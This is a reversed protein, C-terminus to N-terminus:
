GRTLEFQESFCADCLGFDALRGQRAVYAPVFDWGPAHGGQRRFRGCGACAELRGLRGLYRGDDPPMPPYLDAIPMVHRPTFIVEVGVVQGEADLVPAYAAGLIHAVEAGHCTATVEQPLGARARRLVGALRRVLPDGRLCALYDRGKLAAGQVSSAGGNEAAFLDWAPNCHRIRGALDLLCASHDLADLELAATELAPPALDTATVPRERRPAGPRPSQLHRALARDDERIHPVILGEVFGAVREVMAPTAGEDRYSEALALFAQCISEHARCHTDLGPHRSAAMIREEADFHVYVYDALAGLAAVAEPVAASRELASILESARALIERHQRDIEADGTELDPTWEFDM